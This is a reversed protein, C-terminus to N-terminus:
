ASARAAVIRGGGILVCAGILATLLGAWFSPDGEVFFGFAAGCVVAGIAGLVVDGISGYSPSDMVKGALWGVVLGITLWAAVSQVHLAFDAFLMNTRRLKASFVFFGVPHFV